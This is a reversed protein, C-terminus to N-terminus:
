HQIGYGRAYAEECEEAVDRVEARVPAVADVRVGDGGEEGKHGKEGGEDSEDEHDGEEGDGHAAEMVGAERRV